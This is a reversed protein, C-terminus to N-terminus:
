MGRIEGGIETMTNPSNGSCKSFDVTMRVRRGKKLSSRLFGFTKIRRVNKFPDTSFKVDGSSDICYFIFQIAKLLAHM